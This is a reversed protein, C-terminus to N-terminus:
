IQSKAFLALEFFTDNESIIMDAILRSDPTNTSDQFIWDLLKLNMYFYVLDITNENEPYGLGIYLQKFRRFNPIVGDNKWKRYERQISHPDSYDAFKPAILDCFKKDTKIGKTEKFRVLFRTMPRELHDGNFVPFVNRLFSKRECIGVQDIELCILIYLTIIKAVSIRIFKIKEKSEAMELESRLKQMSKLNYLGTCELFNIAKLRVQEIRDIKELKRDLHNDLAELRLTEHRFLPFPIESRHIKYGREAEDICIEWFTKSEPADLNVNLLGKTADSKLRKRLTEFLTNLHKKFTSERPNEIKGRELREFFRYTAENEEKTGLAIKHHSYGCFKVLEDPTPVFM